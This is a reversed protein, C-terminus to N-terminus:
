IKEKFVFHAALNKIGLKDILIALQNSYQQRFANWKWMNWERGKVEVITNQQPLYFDPIYGYMRGEFVIIYSKDEYTWPENISDLYQAVKVEWTSRFHIDKYIIRKSRRAAPNRLNAISMKYRTEQSCSHNLLKLRIKDRVEQTRPIGIRDKGMKARTEASHKKGLHGLRNKERTSFSHRWCNCDSLCPKRPQLLGRNWAPKGKNWPTYGKSFVM